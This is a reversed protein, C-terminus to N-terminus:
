MLKKSTDSPDLMESSKSIVLGFSQTFSESFLMIGVHLIVDTKTLMNIFGKQHLLHYALGDAIEVHSCRDLRTVHSFPPLPSCVNGHM